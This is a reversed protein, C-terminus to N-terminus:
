YVFRAGRKDDRRGYCIGFREVLTKCLERHSKAFFFVESHVLLVLLYREGIRAYFFRLLDETYVIYICVLADLEHVMELGSNAGLGQVLAVFIIHDAISFDHNHVFEGTTELRAPPPRLTKMLCDLGFFAHRDM